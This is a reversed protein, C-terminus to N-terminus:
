SRAEAAAHRLDYAPRESRIPPLREFNLEPPPSSTTWELTYGGWPDDGAPIRKRTSVILNAVFIAVAVFQIAAGLSSLANLQSWAPIAPYTYVRRMMGMMGLLFQPFFTLNFGVLLLWFHWAGLRERLRYGFMKPFWFYIAAFTAFLSGGGLAYHFHAVLFYSDRAQFDIPPSAVMVGTVGGLLFNFLFGLAFLMPTALRIRGRWMTGIWNFFKVGTPVAILFSMGSFFPDVVAGTTFMHHAWVTMSLGAIAFAALVLGTYGFVPKRSFTAVVETIIGFFPLIMVYVEPHGFFWWLHQYLIASGGMAPDFFHGGLRRDILLMALVATLPPFAVLVLLSTAVMEWTFIPMRWMTMGPARYVLVTTTFNVATMITSISIMLLGVIWLDQGLGDGVRITSLPAYATWGADGAGGNTAAGLFVTLGGFLFLWFSFANLRPLAMDPAGIQLPILYNALGFGFPAIVLFVMATGHLTFVQDFAQPGVLTMGAHLLQLRITLALAGAIVFYAFVTSIYLIGIRKHDTAALWSLIGHDVLAQAEPLEAAASM